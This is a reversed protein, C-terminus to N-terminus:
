RDLADAHEDRRVGAPTFTHDTAARRRDKLFRLDEETLLYEGHRDATMSTGTAAEVRNVLTRPLVVCGPNDLLWQQVTPDISTWLTSMTM